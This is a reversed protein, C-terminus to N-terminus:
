QRASQLAKSGAEPAVQELLLIRIRNRRCQTTGGYAMTRGSLREIAAVMTGSSLRHRSDLTALSVVIGRRGWSRGCRARIQIQGPERELLLSVADIITRYAALQLGVSLICPDGILRHPALRATAKWAEDIGGIQLALYLGVHELSTPYVMTIQERFKRSHLVTVKLLGGALEHHGKTKLWEAVDSLSADFGDSLQRIDLARSRLEKETATQAARSHSLARERELKHTRLEQYYHSVCAGVALLAIGVLALSQQASFAAPDFSDAMGSAPMTLRVILSWIPVSIAAGKWGHMCTLAVAPLALLLLINTKAPGPAAPIWLAAFGVFAMLVLCIVTPVMLGTRSIFGEKRRTWLLALPAITLIGIFDGVLFRVADTGIGAAPPTTWLLYPIMLNLTTVTITSAAAVCILWAGARSSMFRRHLHAIFMVAPMLVASSVVFWTWGYRAIMPYRAFAFYCYEGLLLYPWLRLPTLLLAAVRVGAPLYFQDMSVERAAWYAFAYLLAVVLGIPRIRFNLHLGSKLWETQM